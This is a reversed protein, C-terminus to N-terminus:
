RYRGRGDAPESGREDRPRPEFLRVTLYEGNDVTVRCGGYVFSLRGGTRPTGDHRPEFLANLAAPDLVDVLPRLSRPRRGEVASVARVVAASVPEDAEVDYEM